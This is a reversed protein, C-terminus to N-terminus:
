FSELYYNLRNPAKFGLIDQAPITNAISSNIGMSNGTFIFNPSIARALDIIKTGEGTGIELPLQLRNKNINLKIAECIDEVAIFDRIQEGNGNIVLSEEKMKAKLFKAIVSNKKELYNPGGYVNTFRLCKINAGLENLRKAEIECAAKTFSYTSAKPNQVGCSSAFIVPIGSEFAIRFINFSASINSKVAEEINGECESIGSVAALHIIYDVNFINTLEECKIGDKKDILVFDYEDCYLNIFNQAIYGSSGTIMVNKKM